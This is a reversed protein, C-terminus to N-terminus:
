VALRVGGDFKDQDCDPAGEVDYAFHERVDGDDEVTDKGGRM